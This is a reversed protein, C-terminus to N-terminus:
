SWKQHFKAKSNLYMESLNMKSSTQKGFHSLPCSILNLNIGLKSARFSLDTDEYYVFFSINDFPGVCGDLILKDFTKKAGALCWGSLYNFPKNIGSDFNNEYKFNFKDDIFGGTPSVLQNAGITLNDFWQIYNDKFKIDNNLFLVNSGTSIQYGQNCACGFGTNIENFIFKCNDNSLSSLYEKTGDTSCNDVVIIEYINKDLALLKEVCNKTYKLNNLVPIIISLKYLYNRWQKLPM